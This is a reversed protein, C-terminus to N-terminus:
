KDIGPAVVRVVADDRWAAVVRALHPSVAVFGVPLDLVAAAGLRDAPEDDHYYRQDLSQLLVVRCRAPLDWLAETTPWWTAVAVDVPEAAAAALPLVPVGDLAPPGDAADGCVVLVADDLRRAWERIVGMGGSRGLEAVLLAVHM